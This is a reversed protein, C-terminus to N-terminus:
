QEEDELLHPYEEMLQGQPSYVKVTGDELVSVVKGVQTTYSIGSYGKERLIKTQLKIYETNNVRPEALIGTEIARKVKDIGVM